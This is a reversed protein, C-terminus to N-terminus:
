RISRTNPSQRSYLSHPSSRPSQFLHAPTTSSPTPRPSEENSSQTSNARPNKATLLPTQPRRPNTPYIKCPTNTSTRRRAFPVRRLIVPKYRVSCLGCYSVIWSRVAERRGPSVSPVKRQAPSFWRSAYFGASCLLFLSPARAEPHCFRSALRVLLGGLLPGGRLRDRCLCSFLLHRATRHSLRHSAV